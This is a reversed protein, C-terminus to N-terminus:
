RTTRHTPHSSKELPLVNSWDQVASGWGKDHNVTRQIDISRAEESLQNSGITLIIYAIIKLLCKYANTFM